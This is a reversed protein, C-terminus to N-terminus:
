IGNTDDFIGDKSMEYYDGDYPSPANFRTARATFDTSTGTTTYNFYRSATDNPDEINLTPISPTFFSNELFYIKQGTRILNLNSIAEGVKAKELTKVLVPLSLTALVGIIIVVILIETLTFGCRFRKSKM